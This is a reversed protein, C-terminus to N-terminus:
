RAAGPPIERVRGALWLRRVGLEGSARRPDADLLVLHAPQGVVVRAAPGRLLAAIAAPLSTAAIETAPAPAIWLRRGDILTAGKPIATRMRDGVAAITTGRLVVVADALPARGGGDVVTAGVIVTVPPVPTVAATLALAFAIM